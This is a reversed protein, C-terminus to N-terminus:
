DHGVRQSGVSPLGGPMVTQPIKWALFHPLNSNGVGPSRGLRPILGGEGAITFTWTRAGLSQFIVKGERLGCRRCPVWLGSSPSSAELTICILM